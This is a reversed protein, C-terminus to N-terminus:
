FVHSCSHDPECFLGTLLSSEVECFRLISHLLRLIQTNLVEHQPTLLARDLIENLYADHAKIVEDLSRSNRLGELLTNWASELVQVCMCVCPYTRLAM